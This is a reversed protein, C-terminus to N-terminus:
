AVVKVIRTQLRDSRGYNECRITGASFLRRMAAELKAKSLKAARAVAENAFLSPAYNRHRRDNVERESATYQDLLLLFIKEAKHQDDLTDQAPLDWPTVVGVNDGNVLEVSEFKRWTATSAPAVSNAKGRDVRFYSLREFDDFGLNEADGHSM